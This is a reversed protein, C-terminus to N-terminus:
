GESKIKKRFRRKIPRTCIYPSSVAADVCYFKFVMSIKEPSKVFRPLKCWAESTPTREVTEVVKIVTWSLYFPCKILFVQKPCSIVQLCYVSATKSCSQENITRCILNQRNIRGRQYIPGDAQAAM